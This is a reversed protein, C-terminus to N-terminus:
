EYERFRVHEFKSKKVEVGKEDRYELVERKTTAYIATLNQNKCYNVMQYVAGFDGQILVIDDDNVTESIFKKFPTLVEEISELTPPINAWLVQLAEPLPLFFEIGYECDAAERQKESLHHSFLLIMKKM